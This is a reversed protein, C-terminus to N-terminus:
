ILGYKELKYYLASTKIGLLRATETKVGNAQNFAQKILEREIDDLIEPLPKTGLEPKLVAGGNGGTIFSPLDGVNIFDSECLVMSQEIVNELERINGPWQYCGLKKMAEDSLGRIQKRTRPALKTLFHTVLRTLDELRDRLPPVEVPIIHLRYYLDERFNGAKIEELLDKNTSTVVRVDVRITTAGGVREFEREQLVRLLKLQIMPSIDGIEDLFLTGKDALEFRGIRRKHAGTFSGKEHGFLESELVGEALASCNLKIFPGSARPSAEHIARAILEKGTGSEGCIFVTSDGQAIKKITDKIQHIADSEGIMEDTGLSDVEAERLYLNENELRAKEHTLEQHEVAKEVRFRLEDQSFPKTIFDFAGKRMADVATEISGYATIVMVVTEPSRSKVEELVEIGDMGEMRLDTLVIDVPNMELIQLGEPGNGASFVKHGMKAIIVEMGERMTQNDDIVLVHKM